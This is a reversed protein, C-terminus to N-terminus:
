FDYCSWRVTSGEPPSWIQTGSRSWPLLPVTRKTPYLVCMESIGALEESHGAFHLKKNAIRCPVTLLPWSWGPVCCWYHCWVVRLLVMAARGYRRITVSRQHIKISIVKWITMDREGGARFRKRIPFPGASFPHHHWRHSVPGGTNRSQVPDSHSKRRQHPVLFRSQM